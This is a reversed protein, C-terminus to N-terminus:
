AAGNYTVVFAHDTSGSIFLGYRLIRGIKSKIHKLIVAESSDEYFLGVSLTLSNTSILSESNKIPAPKSKLRKRQRWKRRQLKAKEIM